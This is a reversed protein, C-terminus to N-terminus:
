YTGRVGGMATAPSPIWGQIRTPAPQAVPQPSASWAPVPVPVPGSMLVPIQQAQGAAVRQYRVPDLEPIPAQFMRPEIPPVFTTTAAPQSAYAPAAFSVPELVASAMALEPSPYAVWAPEPAPAPAAYVAPAAYPQPQYVPQPQSYSYLQSVPIPEPLPEHVKALDYSTAYVPLPQYNQQYIPQTQYQGPYPRASPGRPRRVTASLVEAPRVAPAQALEIERVSERGRRSGGRKATNKSSSPRKNGTQTQRKKGAQAVRTERNRNCGSVVAGFALAIALIALIVKKSPM